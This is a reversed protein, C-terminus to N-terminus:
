LVKGLEAVHMRICDRQPHFSLPSKTRLHRFTIMLMGIMSYIMMTVGVVRCIGTVIKESVYPTEWRHISRKVKRHSKSLLYNKINPVQNLMIGACLPYWPEGSSVDTCLLIGRLCTMQKEDMNKSLIEEWGDKRREFPSEGATMNKLRTIDEENRLTYSVSELGTLRFMNNIPINEKAIYFPVSTGTLGEFRRLFSGIRHEDYIETVTLIFIHGRRLLTLFLTENEERVSTEPLLILTSPHIEKILDFAHGKGLLVSIDISPYWFGEIRYSTLDIPGLRDISRCEYREHNIADEQGNCFKSLLFLILIFCLPINM